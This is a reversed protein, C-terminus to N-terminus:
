SRTAVTVIERSGPQYPGGSWDGYRAEVTFGAETLLGTLADADLFRLVSRDVRLVTGDPDSTTETFTVLDGDVDLLDLGVVLRRGAPDTVERPPGAAWQEWPRVAPNRTEFAFRGGATLARHVAALSARVEADTLLCQVAHGTMTALPFEGTFPMAAATGRHWAVDPRQRAVQLAAGDPDVGVLRGPHGAARAGKLLTGTGCGVDLASPAAMVLPLYFDDSPHWPNLVDYLAAAQADSCV